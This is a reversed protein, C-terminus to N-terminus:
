PKPYCTTGGWGCALWDRCCGGSSSCSMAPQRRMTDGGAEATHQVEGFASEASYLTVGEFALESMTCRSWRTRVQKQQQQQTSYSEQLAAKVQSHLEKLRVVEGEAAALDSRALTLANTLEHVQLWVSVIRFGVVCICTSYMDAIPPCTQANTLEHM